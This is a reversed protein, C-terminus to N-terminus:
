YININELKIIINIFNIFFFIIYNYYVYNWIFINSRKEDMLLM